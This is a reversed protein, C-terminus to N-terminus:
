GLDLHGQTVRSGHTVLSVGHVTDVAPSFPDFFGTCGVRGLYYHDCKSSVGPLGACMFGDVSSSLAVSFAPVRMALSWSSSNIRLHGCRSNVKVWAEALVMTTTTGVQAPLPNLDRMHQMYKRANREISKLPKNLPECEGM